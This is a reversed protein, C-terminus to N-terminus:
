LDALLETLISYCREYSALNLREAPTRVDEALAGFTVSMWCWSAKLVPKSKGHAAETLTMGHRASCRACRKACPRTRKM